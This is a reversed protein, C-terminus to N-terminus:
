DIQSDAKQLEEGRKEKPKFFVETDFIVDCIESVLDADFSKELRDGSIRRGMKRFNEESSITM